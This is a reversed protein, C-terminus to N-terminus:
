LVLPPKLSQSELRWSWAQGQAGQAVANCQTAANEFTLSHPLKQSVNM